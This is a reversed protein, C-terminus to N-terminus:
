FQKTGRGYDLVNGAAAGGGGGSGSTRTARITVDRTGVSDCRLSFTYLNTGPRTPYQVQLDVGNFLPLQIANAKIYSDGGWLGIGPTYDGDARLESITCVGVDGLLNWFLKATGTQTPNGADISPPNNRYFGLGPPAGQDAAGRFQLLVSRRYTQGLYTCSIGIEVNSITNRPIDTFRIAAGFTPGWPENNIAQKWPIPLPPTRPSEVGITPALVNTRFAYCTTAPTLVGAADYFRVSTLTFINSGSAQLVAGFSVRENTTVTVSRANQGVGSTVIMRFDPQPPVAPDCLGQIIACLNGAPPPATASVPHVSLLTTAAVVVM